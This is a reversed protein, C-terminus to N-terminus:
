APFPANPNPPPPRNQAIAGGELSHWWSVPNIRNPVDSCGALLLALAGAGLGLPVRGAPTRSGRAWIAARGPPQASMRHSSPNFGAAGPKGESDTLLM